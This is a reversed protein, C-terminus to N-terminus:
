PQVQEEMELKKRGIFRQWISNTNTTPQEAASVVNQKVNPPTRLISYITNEPDQKSHHIGYGFYMLMGLSVWIFFRLWTVFSLHVMLAINSFISIAPLIPVLPVKFTLGQTNQNYASILAICAFALFLIFGNFMFTWYSSQMQSETWSVKIQICIGFSFLCFLVVAATVVRDGDVNGVLPQLWKYKPKLRGAAAGGILDCTQSITDTSSESLSDAEFDMNESESSDPAYILSEPKMPRYRLIIVSAAVITYALLTGISMFEVLHKLDFILALLASFIGGSILNLVPVQTFSNIKGFCSFLLGDCAMAYMCRPLAFLSGLLTTTMGCLAGITIIFKAWPLGLQGFAEPLSASPNIEDTPIMLTLAASVLIYGAAVASLSVLTAIPVSSAPNKAEEASTAISDFGVFAYFCTAAGAIVGGFGFPLFGGDSQFWNKTDAYWFGVCIVLSMVGINVLTLLGNFTATVKVGLAMTVAYVLCIVCALIDPYQALLDSDYFEGKGMLAITTNKIWGDLLSDVYGSWARAVSAAGLMHELCINWGIIFAWFEGVAIYTYAYAAGAKPIRTGFEAYCIAALMSVLGALMFSLIIGPGAIEKAVTGTLVYIGAGVMHGIGLLTIDLTTLCRNLTEPPQVGDNPLPKKRNIKGCLNALVHGLIVGGRKGTMNITKTAIKISLGNILFLRKTKKVKTSAPQSAYTSYAVFRKLRSHSM